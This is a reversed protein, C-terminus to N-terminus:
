PTAIVTWIRNLPGWIRHQRAEEELALLKERTLNTPLLAELPGTTFYHTALRSEVTFGADELMEDVEEGELVHVFRDGDIHLPGDLGLAVDLGESPADPSTAWGWRAEMALLLAGGPKIRARIAELVPVPDEVYCLVECAIALDVQVDPLAFVSTWFLDLRGARGAAHWACRRLSDLDGDCGYVTAGADLFPHTLRGIGCGVDLVTKAQMRDGLATLYLDREARKLDWVPSDMALFDMYEPHDLWAQRAGDLYAHGATGSELLWPDGCPLDFRKGMLARLAEADYPAAGPLDLPRGDPWTARALTM